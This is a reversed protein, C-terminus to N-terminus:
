RVIWNKNAGDCWCHKIAGNTSITVTGGSSGNCSWGSPVKVTINNTNASGKHDVLMLYAGAASEDDFLVISQAASSTDIFYVNVDKVATRETGSTLYGISPAAPPNGGFEKNLWQTETKFGM